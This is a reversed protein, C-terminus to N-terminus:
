PAEPQGLAQRLPPWESAPLIAGRQEIARAAVRSGFRAAAVPELGHWRAALYGANFADGAGTTDVVSEAKHPAVLRLEGDARCRIDGDGDTLAWERCTAPIDLPDSQLQGLDEASPLFVDARELAARHAGRAAALSPWLGARFNCDYVFRGGSARFDDLWGFLCERGAEGCLALTIGTCYLAGHGAAAALTAGLRAPERLLRQAASDRRWYLFAREGSADNDILYLGPLAEGDRRVMDTGVGFERAFALMRASHWDTGVASLYDVPVGLQALGVATNFTDGAYGLLHRGGGEPAPRLELMCEGLAAM